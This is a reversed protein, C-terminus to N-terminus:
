ADLHTEVAPWDVKAVREDIREEAHEGVRGDGDPTRYTASTTM